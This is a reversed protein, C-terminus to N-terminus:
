ALVYQYGITSVLMVKNHFQRIVHSATVSKSPIVNRYYHILEHQSLM